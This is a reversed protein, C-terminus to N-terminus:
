KKKYNIIKINNIIINLLQNINYFLLQIKKYLLIKYILYIKNLKNYYQKYLNFITYNCIIKFNKNTYIYIIFINFKYKNIYEIIKKNLLNININYIKFKSNLIPNLNIKNNDINKVLFKCKYLISM